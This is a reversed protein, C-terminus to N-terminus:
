MQANFHSGCVSHEQTRNAQQLTRLPLRRTTQCVTTSTKERQGTQGTQQIWSGHGLNLKMMHKQRAPDIRRFIQDLPSECCRCKDQAPMTLSRQATTVQLVSCQATLLHRRSWHFDNRSLSKGSRSGQVKCGDCTPLQTDGQSRCPQSNGNRLARLLEEDTLMRRKAPPKRRRQKLRTRTGGMWALM